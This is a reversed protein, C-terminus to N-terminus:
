QGLSKAESDAPAPTIALELQSEDGACGVPGRAAAAARREGLYLLGTAFGSLAFLICLVIIFGWVAMIQQCTSQTNDVFLITSTTNHGVALSFFGGTDTTSYNSCTTASLPSGFIAGLVIFPIMFLIDMASTALYPFHTDDYATFSLLTWLLALCSFILTGVLQSPVSILARSDENIFNSVMGVVVILSIIQLPRAGVFAYGYYGHDSFGM